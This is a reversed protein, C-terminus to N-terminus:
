LIFRDRLRQREDRQEDSLDDDKITVGKGDQGEHKPDVIIKNGHM